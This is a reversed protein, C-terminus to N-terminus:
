CMLQMQTSKRSHDLIIKISSKSPSYNFDEADLRAKAASLLNLEEKLNWNTALANEIEAQEQVTTEGYLYRILDLQTFTHSM